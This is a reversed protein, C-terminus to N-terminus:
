KHPPTPPLSFVPPSTKSQRSPKPSNKGLRCRACAPSIKKLIYKTLRWLKHPQTKEQSDLVRFPSLCSKSIVDGGSVHKAM